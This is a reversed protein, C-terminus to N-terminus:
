FAYGIKISPAVGAKFVTEAAPISYDVGATSYTGTGMVQIEPFYRVGIDICFHGAILINIGATANIGKTNETDRTYSFYGAGARLYLMKMIRLIASADAGYMTIGKYLYGGAEIGIRSGGLDYVGVALEPFIGWNTTVGAGAKAVFSTHPRGAKKTDISEVTSKVAKPAAIEVICSDKWNGDITMAFIATKGPGVASVQGEDSVDAVSIDGSYWIFRKDAANDPHVKALLLRSKGIELSLRDQSVTIGTVKVPQPKPLPNWEEKSEPKLEPQPAATVSVACMGTFGGEKTLASIVVRGLGKATVLGNQDVTAISNDV